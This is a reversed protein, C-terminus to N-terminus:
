GDSQGFDGFDALKGLAWLPPHNARRSSGPAGSAGFRGPDPTRRHPKPLTLTGVIGWATVMVALAHALSSTGRPPRLLFGVSVHITM